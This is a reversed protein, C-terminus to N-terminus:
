VTKTEIRRHYGVVCRDLVAEEAIVGDVRSHVM